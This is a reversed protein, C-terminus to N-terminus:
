RLSRADSEASRSMFLRGSWVAANGLSVALLRARRYYFQCDAEWTYGIGGHLHLNEEAAYEFAEIGSLRAAAAAGALEDNGDQMAWAGYYANSRALELKVLVDALKHKVAQNSAIPRGFAFRQRVYDLAMALAGDAGGVQEFAAFVAAQRLVKTLVDQAATGQVLVQADVSSLTLAGHPRLTDFGNLCKRDVGPAEADVLVLM